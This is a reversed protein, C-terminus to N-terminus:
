NPPQRKAYSSILFITGTVTSAGGVGLLGLALSRGGTNEPSLGLIVGGASLLSVGLLFSFKGSVAHVRRLEEQELVNRSVKTKPKEPVKEATERPIGWYAYIEPDIDIPTPATGPVWSKGRVMKDPALSFFGRDLLEVKSVADGERRFIEVEGEFCYVMSLRREDSGAGANPFVDVGFDAERVGAITEDGNIWVNAGRPLQAIRGRVRGESVNFVWGLENMSSITVISNEAVTIMREEIGGLTIDLFGGDETIVTDGPSLPLELIEVSELDFVTRAGDSVVTFGEGRAATVAATTQGAAPRAWILLVVAFLASLKMIMMRVGKGAKEGTTKEDNGGRAKM